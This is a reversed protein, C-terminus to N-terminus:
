KATPPGGVGPIIAEPLGRIKVHLEWPPPGLDPQGFTASTPGRAEEPGIPIGAGLGVGVHGAGVGVGPFIGSARGFGPYVLNTPHVIAGDPRRVFVEEIRGGDTDITFGVANQLPTFDAYLHANKPQPQAQYRLNYTNCGAASAALSVLALLSRLRAM